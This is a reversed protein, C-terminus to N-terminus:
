LERRRRHHTGRRHDDGRLLPLYWRRRPTPLATLLWPVMARVPLPDRVGPMPLPHRAATVPPAAAPSWTCRTPPTSPLGGAPVSSLLLAPVPRRAVATRLCSM